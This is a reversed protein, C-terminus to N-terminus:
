PTKCTFGVPVLPQEYSGSDIYITIPETLGTYTVDFAAVTQAQGEVGTKDVNVTYTIEEGNPGALMNFYDVVRTDSIPYSGIKVPKEASFGYDKDTSVACTELTIEPLIASEPIQTFEVSGLVTMFIDELKQTAAAKEEDTLNENSGLFSSMDMNMGMFVQSEELPLVTVMQLDLGMVELKLGFADQDDVTLQTIQSPDILGGVDGGGLSSQAAQKMLEEYTTQDVNPAGMFSLTHFAENMFIISYNDQKITQYGEPLQVSFGGGEITVREGLNVVPTATPTPVPTDTPVPTPTDTPVPTDTPEPTATATPPLTPVDTPVEPANQCGTILMVILLGIWLVYLKRNM